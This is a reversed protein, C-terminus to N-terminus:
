ANEPAPSAPTVGLLTFDTDDDDRGHVRGEADVMVPGAHRRSVISDPTLAEHSKAYLEEWLAKPVPMGHMLARNLIEDPRDPRDSTIRAIAVGGSKIDLDLEAGFRGAYGRLLALEPAEAVNRVRVAGHRGARAEALALDILNPV